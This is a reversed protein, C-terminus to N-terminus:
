RGERRRSVCGTVLCLVPVKFELSALKMFANFSGKIKKDIKHQPLELVSRVKDVQFNCICRRRLRAGRIQPSGRKTAFYSEEVVAGGDLKYPQRFM